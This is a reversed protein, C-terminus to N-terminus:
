EGEPLNKGETTDIEVRAIAVRGSEPQAQIEKLTGRNQGLYYGGEGKYVSMYTNFKIPTKEVVLNGETPSAKTEKDWKAFVYDGNRLILGYLNEQDKHVIKVDEDGVKYTKKRAM